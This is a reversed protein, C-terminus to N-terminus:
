WDRERVATEIDIEIGYRRLIAVATASISERAVTEIESGAEDFEDQLDNIALVAEDLKLQAEEWTRGGDAISAAIYANVGELLFRVKDVLRNPFYGDEYMEILYRIATDDKVETVVYLARIAESVAALLARFLDADGPIYLGCDGADSDCGMKGALEPYKERLYGFLYAEWGLGDPQFGNQTILDNPLTKGDTEKEFPYLHCIYGPGDTSRFMEFYISATPANGWEDECTMPIKENELHLEWYNVPASGGADTTPEGDGSIDSRVAAARGAMQLFLDIDPEDPNLEKSKEFHALAQDHQESYYYAYGMRFHWLSDSEGRERVSLLHAIAAAFKDMNHHRSLDETVTAAYGSEVATALNNYARALIGVLYYDRESEPIALIAEIIKENECEAHWYDLKDRFDEPEKEERIREIAEDTVLGKIFTEFDKALFTVAYDNEQDVWVVAPEGASGCARYDLMVMTHGATPTDCVMVGIDPYGWEELMFRSGLAGCLSYPKTRGIGMIGTIKIHGSAWSVPGDTPFCTAAPIGGNHQKMLWIYSGPLKYGLEREIEAILGDSPQEEVYDRLAYDSDKWFDSFDFGEFYAM